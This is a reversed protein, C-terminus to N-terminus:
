DEWVSVSGFSATSHLILLYVSHCPELLNTKAFGEGNKRVVLPEVLDCPPFITISGAGEKMKWGLGLCVRKIFSVFDGWREIKTIYYVTHGL